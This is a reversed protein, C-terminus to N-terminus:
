AECSSYASMIDDNLPYLNKEAIHISGFLYLEGTYVDSTVHWMAPTAEGTFINLLSSCGCLTASLILVLLILALARRLKIKM